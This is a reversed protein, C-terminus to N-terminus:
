GNVKKLENKEYYMHKIKNKYQTDHLRKKKKVHMIVQEVHNKKHKALTALLRNVQKHKFHTMKKKLM